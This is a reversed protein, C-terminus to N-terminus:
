LNGYLDEDKVYEDKKLIKVKFYTIAKDLNKGFKEINNKIFTKAKETVDKFQSELMNIITYFYDSVVIFKKVDQGRFNKVVTFPACKFGLRVLMDKLDDTVVFVVNKYTKLEKILDIGEKLGAPAFHTPIFNGRELVGFAYSNKFKFYLAQENVYQYFNNFPLESGARRKSMAKAYNSYIEEVFDLEFDDCNYIDKFDHFSDLQTQIKKELLQESEKIIYM